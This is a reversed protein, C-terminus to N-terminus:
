NQSTTNSESKKLEEIYRKFEEETMGRIQDMLGGPAYMRDDCIYEIDDNDTDDNNKGMYIGWLKRFIFGCKKSLDELAKEMGTINTYQSYKEMDVQLDIKLIPEKPKM